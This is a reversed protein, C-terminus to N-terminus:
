TAGAEKSGHRAWLNECLIAGAVPTGTVFMSWGDKTEEIHLSAHVQKGNSLTIIASGTDSNNTYAASESHSPM